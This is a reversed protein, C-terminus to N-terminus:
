ADNGQAKDWQIIAEVAGEYARRKDALHNAVPTEPMVATRCYWIGSEPDKWVEVPEHRKRITKIRM